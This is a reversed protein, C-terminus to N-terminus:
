KGDSHESVPQRDDLVDEVYLMRVLVTSAAALPAALTLGM